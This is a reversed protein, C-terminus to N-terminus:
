KPVFLAGAVNAASGELRSALPVPLNFCGYSLGVTFSFGRPRM